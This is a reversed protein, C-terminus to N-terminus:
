AAAPTLETLRALNVKPQRMEAKIELAANFDTRAQEHMDNVVYAVGRNSLAIALMTEYDALVSSSNRNEKVLKEIRAVAADCSETAKSVEGIKLYSVCLNNAVYFENIGRASSNELKEAAVDYQAKRIARGEAADTIFTVTLKPDLEDAAAPGAAFAFVAAALPLAHKITKNRLKM